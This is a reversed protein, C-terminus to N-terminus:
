EVYGVKLYNTKDVKILDKDMCKINENDAYFKIDQFPEVIALMTKYEEHGVYITNPKIGYNCEYIRLKKYLETFINDM